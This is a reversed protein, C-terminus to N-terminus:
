VRLTAPLKQPQIASVEQNDHSDTRDNKSNPLEILATQRLDDLEGIKVGTIAACGLAAVSAGLNILSQEGQEYLGTFAVINLSAITGVTGRVVSRWLRVAKNYDDPDRYNEPCTLRLSEYGM